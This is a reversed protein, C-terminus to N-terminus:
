NRINQLLMTDEDEPDFPVCSKLHLCPRQHVVCFRIYFDLWAIVSEAQELGICVKM